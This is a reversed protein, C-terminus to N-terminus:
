SSDHIFFSEENVVAGLVENKIAQTNLKEGQLNPHTARATQRTQKPAIDSKIHSGLLCPLSRRLVGSIWPSFSLV